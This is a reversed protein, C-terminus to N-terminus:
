CFTESIVGSFVSQHLLTGNQSQVQTESGSRSGKLSQLLYKDLVAHQKGHAAHESRLITVGSGGCNLWNRSERWVACDEAISDVYQSERLGSRSSIVASCQLDELWAVVRSCRYCM